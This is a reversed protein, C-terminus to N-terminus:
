ATPHGVAATSLPTEVRSCAAAHFGDGVIM